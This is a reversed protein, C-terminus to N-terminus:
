LARDVVVAADSGILERRGHADYGMSGKTGAPRLGLGALMQEIAQLGTALLQRNAEALRALEGTVALLAARHELLVEAWPAPAAEALTELSAGRELGLEAAAADALAARQVGASMLDSQVTEVETTSLTLFRTRGAALLLQQCELRYALRDLLARERELAGALASVSM